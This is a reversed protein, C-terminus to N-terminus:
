EVIEQLVESAKRRGTKYGKDKLSKKYNKILQESPLYTPLETEELERLILHKLYTSLGVGFYMARRNLKEKLAPRLVIRVIPNQKKSM